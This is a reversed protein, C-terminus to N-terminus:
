TSERALLRREGRRVLEAMAKLEHGLVRRGAATVHFWRRHGGASQGTDPAPANVERILGDDILEDLSGYLTAPWLKVEGGTLDLVDRMIASGHRDRAALSMLIYFHHIRM